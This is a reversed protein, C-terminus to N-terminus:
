EGLCIVSKYRHVVKFGEPESNLATIMNRVLRNDPEDFQTM